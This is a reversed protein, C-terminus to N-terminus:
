ENVSVRNGDEKLMNTELMTKYTTEVETSTSVKGLIIRKVQKPTMKQKNTLVYSRVYEKVDDAVRGATKLGFSRLAKPMRNELELMCAATRDWVRKDIVLDNRESASLCTAVKIWHAFRRSKYELMNPDTPVPPMYQVNVFYDLEDRFNPDITVQGTLKNIEVLDEALYNIEATPFPPFETRTKVIGDTEHLVPLIRSLLGQGRSTEPLSEVFSTPTTCVIWNLCPGRIYDWGQHKTKNSYEDGSDWVETLFHQLTTNNRDMFSGFETTTLTVVSEWFVDLDPDRVNLNAQEILHMSRMLEQPTIRGTIINLHQDLNFRSIDRRKDAPLGPYASIKNYVKNFPLNLAVSKGSGPPAIMAIYLNPRIKFQGADYWVKRGLAGAVASVASWFRFAPPVISEDNGSSTLVEECSQVFDPYRRTM